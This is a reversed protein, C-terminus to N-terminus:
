LWNKDNKIAMFVSNVILLGLFIRMPSSILTRNQSKAYALCNIIQDSGGGGREGLM